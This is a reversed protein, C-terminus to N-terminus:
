GCRCARAQARSPLKFRERRREDFWISNRFEVSIQIRDLKEACSLIHAYGDRNPIFWSPFQFVVTGLKGAAKLPQLSSRFRQWLEDTVEAPLDRYYLNKKERPGLAEQIDKPFKSPDTQHGTFVRFAKVHFVFNKPTREVWAAANRESPLSYYSSDVETVPFKSAYYKLRDEPTKVRPPYFM